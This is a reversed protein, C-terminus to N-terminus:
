ASIGGRALQDLLSAVPCVAVSPAGGVSTTYIVYRGDASFHPHPDIHYTRFDRWPVGPPPMRSVIAIESRSDRDFFWVRCPVRDNWNYCGEDSVLFRGTANCMGHIAPRPWILESERTVPDHEVIGRDYDCYQVRGDRTWWEHCTRSNRGFWLTPDVPEYRDLTTNMLWMRVDMESKQGTYPDRWHGHAVLFLTSDHYSFIAHHHERGFWRLPEIEGSGADVLSILWRNGIWSDLLFREGAADLTLDTVLRFLHRGELMSPPMRFVEDCAEDADFRYIGDDVPLFAAHGSEDLVGNGSQRYQMSGPLDRCTPEAPDLSVVANRWKKVPPDCAYFWLYSSDGAVSPRVFM